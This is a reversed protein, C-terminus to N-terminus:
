EKIPTAIKHKNFYRKIKEEIVNIKSLANKTEPDNIEDLIKQMIKESELQTVSIDEWVFEIGCYPCRKFNSFINDGGCNQCIYSDEYNNDDYTEAPNNKDMRVKKM